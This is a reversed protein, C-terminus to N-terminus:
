MNSFLIALSKPLFVKELIKIKNNECEALALVLLM